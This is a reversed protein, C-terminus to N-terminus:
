RAGGSRRALQSVDEYSSLSATDAGDSLLAIAQRRVQQPERAATALDKLAIYLADYVATSGRPVIQGLAAEVDSTDTTLAQRVRVADRFEIM